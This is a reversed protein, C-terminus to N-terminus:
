IFRPEESEDDISRWYIREEDDSLSIKRQVMKTTNRCVKM